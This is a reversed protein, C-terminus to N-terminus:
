TDPVDGPQMPRLHKEVTRGLNHELLEIFRMLQVPQDNGLNYVRYPASSTGPHPQEPNHAPDPEAPHDLARIMGEVIDDIYTFDRSHHGHNFV